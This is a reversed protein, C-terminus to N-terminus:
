SYVWSGTEILTTAFSVQGGNTGTNNVYTPVGQFECGSHGQGGTWKEPLIAPSGIKSMRAIMATVAVTSAVNTTRGIYLRIGYVGSITQPTLNAAAVATQTVTVSAGTVGTESVPAYAIVGTGTRTYIAGLHLQYGEPIPIFLSDEEGRYGIPVGALDYTVTQSPVGNAKFNSTPAITPEVNYVLTAAEDGYTMSPNAWRAPLVNTDYTLPDIFYILGRGFAGDRYDKILQAMRRASSRRWEFVFRKHSGTSNIAYGGGGLLTGDAGWASPSVNAGSLPVDVWQMWDLTGFWMRKNNSVANGAM